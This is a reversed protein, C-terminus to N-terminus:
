QLSNDIHDLRALLEDRKKPTMQGPLEREVTLLARYRRYLM